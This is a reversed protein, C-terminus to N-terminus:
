MWHNSYKLLNWYFVLIKPTNVLVKISQCFTHKYIGNCNWQSIFDWHNESFIVVWHEFWSVCLNCSMWWPGLKAADHLTFAKLLRDHGIVNSHEIWFYKHKQFYIYTCKIQITSTNNSYKEVCAHVICSLAPIHRRCVIGHTNKNPWICERTYHITFRMSWM